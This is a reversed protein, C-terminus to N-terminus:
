AADRPLLWLQQSRACVTGAADVIATGAHLKRGDQQLPWALVRYRAGAVLPQDITATMRVTMIPQSRGLRHSWAMGAPCDLAAWTAEASLRGDPGALVAPPVWTTAMLGTDEDVPGVIVGLGDPRAFGCVFCQAYADGLGRQQHRLRAAVGAAEAVADAPAAPVTIDLTASAAEAVVTDGDCLALSGDPQQRLPLPRGLPVPARLAVTAVPGGLRRALAGAVWGGNGSTRPGNHRPDIQLTDATTM